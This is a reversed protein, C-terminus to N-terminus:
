ELNTASRSSSYKVAFPDNLKRGFMLEAPTFGTTGIL